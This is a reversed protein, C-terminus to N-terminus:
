AVVHAAVAGPVTESAAAVVCSLFQLEGKCLCPRDLSNLFGILGHTLELWVCVKWYGNIVSYVM